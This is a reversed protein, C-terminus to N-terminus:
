RAGHRIASDALAVLAARERKRSFGKVQLTYRVGRERWQIQPAACSAGCSTPTFRGARGRALDVRRGTMGRAGRDALFAAVFCATAQHCGRVAGLDLAYHGRRWTGGPYLRRFETRLRSPLLVRVGSASRAKAVRKGLTGPVDVRHTGAALAASALLLAALLAVAVPRLV